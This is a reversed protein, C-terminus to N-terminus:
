HTNSHKKRKRHKYLSIFGFVYHPPFPLVSNALYFHFSFVGEISGVELQSKRELEMIRTIEIRRHARYTHFDGSGAGATSGMINEVKEVQAHNYLCLFGWAM